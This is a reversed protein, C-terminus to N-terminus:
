VSARLSQFVDQGVLLRLQDPFKLVIDEFTDLILVPVMHDLFSKLSYGSFMDLEDDVGESTVNLFQRSVLIAAPDYLAHQLVALLM